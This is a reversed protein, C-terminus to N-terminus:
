SEGEKIHQWTGDPNKYWTRKRNISLKHEVALTFDQVSLGKYNLAGLLCMFVDAAEVIDAEMSFEFAEHLAKKHAHARLDPGDKALEELWTIVNQSVATLQDTM